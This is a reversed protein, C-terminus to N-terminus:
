PTAEIRFAVAPLMEGTARVVFHGLVGQFASPQYALDSGKYGTGKTTCYVRDAKLIRTANFKTYPNFLKDTKAKPM